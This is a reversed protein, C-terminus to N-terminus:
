MGEKGLYSHDVTWGDANIYLVVAGVRGDDTRSGDKWWMWVGSGTKRERERAWQKTARQAAVKDDLIITKVAAEKWPGALGHDRSDPRTWAREQSSQMNTLWIHPLWAAGEIQIRWLRRSAMSRFTSDQGRECGTIGSWWNKQTVPSM